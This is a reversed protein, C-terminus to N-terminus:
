GNIESEKIKEKGRYYTVRAWTESNNLIKGIQKFSLEGEIRLKIVEKTLVDLDKFKDELYIEEEKKELEYTYNESSTYKELQEDMRVIRKTRKLEDYWLNRAIKCLWTSLKCKGNFNRIGVTARYFTEQTLEEAIDEDHSLMLLYKYVLQFNDKYLDEM